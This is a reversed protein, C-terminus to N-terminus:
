KLLLVFEVEDVEAGLFLEDVVDVSAGPLVWAIGPFDCVELVESVGVSGAEHEVVAVLDVAGGLCPEVLRFEVQDITGSKGRPSEDLAPAAVGSLAHAGQPALGGALPHDAGDSGGVVGSAIVRSPVGLEATGLPSPGASRARDRRWSICRSLSPM